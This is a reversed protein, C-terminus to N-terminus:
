ADCPFTKVLLQSGMMELLAFRLSESVRHASSADRDRLCVGLGRESPVKDPERASWLSRDNELIRSPAFTDDRIGLCRDSSSIM